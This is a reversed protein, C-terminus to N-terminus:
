HTQPPPAPPTTRRLATQREAIQLSLEVCRDVLERFRKFNALQPKIQPLEDPRVYKTHSRRKHTYSLQWYSGAKAARDKYQQSLCGPRMPGVQALEAQAQALQSQWKMLQKDEVPQLNAAYRCRHGAGGPPSPRPLSIKRVSVDKEWYYLM